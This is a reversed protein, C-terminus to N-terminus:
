AAQLAAEALGMIAEPLGGEAVVVSIAVEAATVTQLPCGAAAAAEM